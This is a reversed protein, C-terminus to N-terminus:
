ILHLGLAASVLLGIWITVVIPRTGGLHKRISQNVADDAEGAALKGFAATFPKLKIRIILGCGVLGGFIALKAAVWYVLTGPGILSYLGVAILSLSLLLRFYFDIGTLLTKGKSAAAYHLTLVMTLWGISLAWVGAVVTGSIPLFGLSWALHVGLPLMMTMSIRPGQDVAFLIRAATLRAETSRKDDVVAFSSLFVGLDGGLWYAFGVLHLLKILLIETM